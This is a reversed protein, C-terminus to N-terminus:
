RAAEVRWLFLRTLAGVVLFMAIMECVLQVGIVTSVLEPRFKSVIWDVRNTAYSFPYLLVVPVAIVLFTPLFTNFAVRVSDRLAPWAGRSRLVVWATTYALLSQLIIFVFLNAGRVGWRVIRNGLTLEAPVLASLYGVGLALGVSVVSLIVLAPWRRAAAKWAGGGSASGFARAFLLTAVGGALSAILITVALNYRAFMTPLAYFFVPYHTAVDGGLLEVLPLGIPLLADRHFGILLGLGLLQALIMLLFPVWISPRLALVAASQWARVAVGLPLFFDM